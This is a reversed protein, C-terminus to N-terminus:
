DREAAIKNRVGIQRAADGLLQREAGIIALGEVGEVGLTVRVVRSIWKVWRGGGSRLCHPPLSRGMTSGWSDTFGQVRSRETTTETAAIRVDAVVAAGATPGLLETNLCEASPRRTIYKLHGTQGKGSPSTSSGSLFAFLVAPPRLRLQEDRLGLVFTDRRRTPPLEAESIWTHSRPRGKEVANCSQATSGMALSGARHLPRPALSCRPAM